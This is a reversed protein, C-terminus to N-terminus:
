LTLQLLCLECSYVILGSKTDIRITHDLFSRCFLRVFFVFDLILSLSSFLRALQKKFSRLKLPLVLCQADETMSAISGGVLVHKLLM